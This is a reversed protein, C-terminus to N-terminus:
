GVTPSDEELHIWQAATCLDRNHGSLVIVPVNINTSGNDVRWLYINGSTVANQSLTTLFANDRCDKGWQVRTVEANTNLTHTLVPEHMSAGPLVSCQAIDWVKVSKDISGTALINPQTPSWAVSTVGLRHSTDKGLTEM